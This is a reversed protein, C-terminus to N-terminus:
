CRRRHDFSNSGDHDRGFVLVFYCHFSFYNAVMYNCMHDFIQTTWSPGAILRARVRLCFVVRYFRATQVRILFHTLKSNSDAPLKEGIHSRLYQHFHLLAFIGSAFAPQYAQGPVYGTSWGVLSEELLFSDQYEAQGGNQISFAFSLLTLLIISLLGWLLLTSGIEGIPLAGESSLAEFLNIKKAALIWRHHAAIISLLLAELFAVLYKPLVQEFSKSM